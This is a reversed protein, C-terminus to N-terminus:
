ASAKARRRNFVIAQELVWRHRDSLAEGAALRRATEIRLADVADTGLHEQLDDSGACIAQAAAAEDDSFIWGHHPDQVPAAPRKPRGFAERAAAGLQAGGKCRACLRFGDFTCVAYAVTCIRCLDPGSADTANKPLTDATM